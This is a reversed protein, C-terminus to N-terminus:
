RKWYKLFLDYLQKADIDIESASYMLNLQSNQEDYAMKWMLKSLRGVYKDTNGVTTIVLTDGGTKQLQIDTVDSWEVRGFAKSLPTTKGYFGTSDFQILPSKDRVGEICKFMLFVMILLAAGSFIAVKTKVIADFIGIGYLLVIILILTVSSAYLLLNRTKKANRYLKTEENM